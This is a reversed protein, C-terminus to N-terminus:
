RHGRVADRDRAIGRRRRHERGVLKNEVAAQARDRAAEETGAAVVMVDRENPPLQRELLRALALPIPRAKQRGYGFAAPAGCESPQVFDVTQEHAVEVDRVDLVHRAVRGAPDCFGGGCRHVDVVHFSRHCRQPTGRLGGLPRRREVDGCARRAPSEPHVAFRGEEGVDGERHADPEVRDAEGRERAHYRRRADRGHVSREVAVDCEVARSCAEGAVRSDGHGVHRQRGVALPDGVLRVERTGALL